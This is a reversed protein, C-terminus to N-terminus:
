LKGEEVLMLIAAATFQKSVSGISYRMEPKAPVVPDLRAKGYAHLYAIRGNKVVALSLSPAGSEILAKEAISDIRATTEPSLQAALSGAWAMCIALRRTPSM